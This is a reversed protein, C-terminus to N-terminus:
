ANTSYLDKFAIDDYLAIHDLIWRLRFHYHPSTASKTTLQLINDVQFSESVYRCDVSTLPLKYWTSGAHCTALNTTAMKNTQYMAAIIMIVITQELKPCYPHIFWTYKCFFSLIVVVFYFLFITHTNDNICHPFSLYQPPNNSQPAQRPTRIAIDTIFRALPIPLDTLHGTGAPRVLLWKSVMVNHRTGSMRRPNLVTPRGRYGITLFM